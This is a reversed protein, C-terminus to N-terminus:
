ADRGARVMAAVEAAQLRGGRSRGLAPRPDDDKDQAHLAEVIQPRVDGELAGHLAGIRVFNGVGPGLVPSTRFLEELRAEPIRTVRSMASTAMLRLEADPLAYCRGTAMGTAMFGASVALEQVIGVVPHGSRRALYLCKGLHAVYSNNGMLEDWLSLKQGSNNVILLIPRAPTDRMVDLVRRALALALKAGIHARDLTGIVAVREGKLSGEGAIMLGERAVTYDEGFLTRLLTEAADERDSM